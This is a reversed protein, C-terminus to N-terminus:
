VWRELKMSWFDDLRDDLEMNGMRRGSRAATTAPSVGANGGHMYFTRSKPDYVVQHAWRPVPIETELSAEDEADVESRTRKTALGSGQGHSKTATKHPPPPPLARTWTGSRDAYRFLWIASEAAPTGATRSRTLGDFSYSSFPCNLSGDQFISHCHRRKSM